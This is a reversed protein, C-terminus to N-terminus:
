TIHTDYYEKYKNSHILYNAHAYNHEIAEQVEDSYFLDHAKNVTFTKLQELIHNLRTQNDMTDYSEDFMTPFTQFGMKHLQKLSNRNGILLFPRKFKISRFVKETFFITEHWELEDYHYYDHDYYTEAVLDFYSNDCKKLFQNSPTETCAGLERLNNFGEISKPLLHHLNHNILLNPESILTWECKDLLDNDDLYNLTDIRHPREFGNFFTFVNKREDDRTFASNLDAYNLMVTNLWHPYYKANIRNTINNIKCYRDYLKETNANGFYLTFRTPDYDVLECNSHIAEFITIGNQTYYDDDASRFFMGGETVHSMNIDQDLSKAKLLHMKLHTEAHFEEEITIKYVGTM